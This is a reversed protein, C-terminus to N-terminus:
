KRNAMAEIFRAVAGADEDSLQALYEGVTERVQLQAPTLPQNYGGAVGNPLDMSNQTLGLRSEIDRAVREGM